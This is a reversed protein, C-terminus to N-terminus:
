DGKRRISQGLLLATAKVWRSDPHACLYRYCLWPVYIGSVLSLITYCWWPLEVFHHLIQQSAVNCFWSLLFILYNAGVLHDIFRADRAELIKSLSIFMLIGFFSCAMVYGTHETAFFLVAWLVTLLLLFPISAWPVVRDINQRFRAYACGSVFYVGLRVAENLSFETGFDVPAFPLFIFFLIVSSFLVISNIGAKRGLSLVIYNFVLLIFSAQLFWFYPIPINESYIFARLFSSASLEFVDDAMGSMMARPVFTIVTLVVFPLLLREIKKRVFKSISAATKESTAKATYVMLFGSIFMFLPMHFSYLMRYALLSHGMVGDPYEHFSHGLVVLIIGIVQLYAIFRLFHSNGTDSNM